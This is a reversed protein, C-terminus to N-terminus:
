ERPAEVPSHSLKGIRRRIVMYTTFAGLYSMALTSLITRLLVHNEIYAEHGYLLIYHVVLMSQFLISSTVSLVMRTYFNVRSLFGFATLGIVFCLFLSFLKGYIVHRLWVELIRLEDAEPPYPYIMWAFNGLALIVGFAVAPIGAWIIIMRFSLQM